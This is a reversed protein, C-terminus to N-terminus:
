GVELRYSALNYGARVAILGANRAEDRAALFSAHKSIRALAMIEDAPIRRWGKRWQFIGTLAEMFRQGDISLGAEIVSNRFVAIEGAPYYFRSEPPELGLGAYILSAALQDPPM